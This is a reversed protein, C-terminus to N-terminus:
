HAGQPAGLAKLVDILSEYGSVLTRATEDTVQEANFLDLSQEIPVDGFRTRYHGVHLALVRAVEAIEEKTAQELLADSAALLIAFKQIAETM